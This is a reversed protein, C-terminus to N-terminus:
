QCSQNYIGWSYLSAWAWFITKNYLKKGQIIYQGVKVIFKQAYKNEVLVKIKVLDFLPTFWPMPIKNMSGVMEEVGDISVEFLITVLIIKKHGIVYIATLTALADTHSNKTKIVAKDWLRGGKLM